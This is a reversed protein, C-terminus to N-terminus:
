DEDEEDKDVLGRKKGWREMAICADVLWSFPTIFILALIPLVLPAVVLAAVIILFLEM